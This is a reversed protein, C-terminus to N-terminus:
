PRVAGDLEYQYWGALAVLEVDAGTHPADILEGHGVYIGVHENGAFGLIDGAQLDGLPVSPLQSIQDFSVRPISIGASAWAAQTLGSCDYSGPGTAGWVYPKGLQAYAFAVAKGAQTSTPGTYQVPPTAPGGPVAAQQQVPTLRALLKRESRTLKDLQRKKALLGYDLIAAGAEVRHQEQQQATANTSLELLISFQDLIQQPSGSALMVLPNVPGEQYAASADEGVERNLTSLERKASRLEQKAEDYQQGTRGAELDLQTLRHQVQSVSPVPSAQAAAGAGLALCM